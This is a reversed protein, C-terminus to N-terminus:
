AAADADAMPPLPVCSLPRGETDYSALYCVGVAGTSGEGGPEAAPGPDGDAGQWEWTSGDGSAAILATLARADCERAAGGAVAPAPLAPGSGDPYGEDGYYWVSWAHGTALDDFPDAM